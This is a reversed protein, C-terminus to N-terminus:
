SPYKLGLQDSQSSSSYNGFLAFLVIFIIQFGLLLVPLLFRLKGDRPPIRQHVFRYENSPSQAVSQSMASLPREAQSKTPSSSDVSSIIVLTETVQQDRLQVAEEKKTDLDENISRPLLPSSASATNGDTQNSM